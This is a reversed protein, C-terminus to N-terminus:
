SRQKAMLSRLGAEFIEDIAALVESESADTLTIMRFLDYVPQLRSDSPPVVEIGGRALLSKLREAGDGLLIWVAKRINGTALLHSDKRVQIVNRGRGDVYASKVEVALKTDAVYCDIRRGGFPTSFTVRDHQINGYPVLLQTQLFIRTAFGGFDGRATTWTESIAPSHAM